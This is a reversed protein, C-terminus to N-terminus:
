AGLEDLLAKADKLDATDFGETFWNYIDALMTRAEDRRGRKDLLRALSTTARLEWSRAQQGQAIEISKRLCRDAESSNSQGQLLLLDGKLRFLEAMNFRQGSTEALPLEAEIVALGEPAIGAALYADALVCRFYRYSMGDEAPNILAMGELTLRIGEDANGAAVEIRGLRVMGCARWYRFGSEQSMAILAQAKARVGSYERLFHSRLAIESQLAAAKEWSRGVRDAIELTQTMRHMAQEPYGLMWMMWSLHMMCLLYFRQELSEFSQKGVAPAAGLELHDRAQVYDGTWACSVGMATHGFGKAVNDGSQAAVSLLRSAIDRAEVHRGATWNASHLGGLVPILAPTEGIRLCLEEARNLNLWVERSGNGYNAGLLPTFKARITVEQQDRASSAPLKELHGLAAEFQNVAESYASRLAARDGARILYEVAKAVNDSRSYHHALESLHDDLQEAFMSELAVGAREHLLKRRETLMSNYAVEQTLAHKFTYEIDPFAPQEYIFEGLQLSDLMRALEDDSKRAVERVLSLLFEKGIVALTQLLDKEDSPLRDIRAALIAQVTPPIKLEGLPRTLRIVGNRL